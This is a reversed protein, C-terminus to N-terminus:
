RGCGSRFVSRGFIDFLCGPTQWATRALGLLVAEPETSASLLAARRDLFAWQNIQARHRCPRDIEVILTTTFSLLVLLIPALRACRKRDEGLVREAAAWCM